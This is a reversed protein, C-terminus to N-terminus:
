PTDDEEQTKERSADAGAEKLLRYLSRFGAAAGFLLFLLLLWPETGFYDDLFQGVFLGLLVAFGLEMGVTSYRLYKRFPKRKAAM